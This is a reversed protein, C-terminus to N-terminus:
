LSLAGVRDSERARESARVGVQSSATERRERDEGQLRQREWLCVPRRVVELFPSKRFHKEPDSYNQIVQFWSYCCCIIISEEVVSQM